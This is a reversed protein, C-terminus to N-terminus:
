SPALSADGEALPVFPEVWLQVSNAGGAPSISALDALAVSPEVKQGAEDCLYIDWNGVAFSMQKATPKAEVLDKLLVCSISAGDVRVPFARRGKSHIYAIFAM